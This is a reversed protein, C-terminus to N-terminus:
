PKAIAERVAPVVDPAWRTLAMDALSNGAEPFYIFGRADHELVASTLEDIWQHCVAL